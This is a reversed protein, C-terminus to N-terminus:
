RGNVTLTETNHGFFDVKVVQFLSYIHIHYEKDHSIYIIHHCGTILCSDSAASVSNPNHSPQIQQELDFNEM